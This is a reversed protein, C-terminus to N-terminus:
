RSYYGSRAAVSAHPVDAKVRIRHWKGTTASEPARYGIVYRYRIAQAIKEVSDSAGAMSRARFSLGGTNAALEELSRWARRAETLEIPKTNAPSNDLIVSYIQTDSEVAARMVDAHSYRSYNDMGDSLVLIARRPRSARRTLNLAFYITDLLATRGGAQRLRVAENLEAVDSTFPTIEAPRDSVTLLCYEDQPNSANLLASAIEKFGELTARMSGSVDLVLGISAPSDDASFSVIHQPTQEDLLTFDSRQLGLVTKGRHDTVTVPVLVLGADVRFASLRDQSHSPRLFAAALVLTALKGSCPM